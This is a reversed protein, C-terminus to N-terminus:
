FELIIWQPLWRDARELNGYGQTPDAPVLTYPKGFKPVVRVARLEGNQRFEYVTRDEGEIVTIDQGRYQPSTIEESQASLSALGLVALAVALGFRGIQQIGWQARTM